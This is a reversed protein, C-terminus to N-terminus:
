KRDLRRSSHAFMFTADTKRTELVMNRGLYTTFTPHIPNHAWSWITRFNHVIILNLKPRVISREGAVITYKSPTCQTDLFIEDQTRPRATLSALDVAFSTIMEFFGLVM